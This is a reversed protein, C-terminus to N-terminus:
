RISLRVDDPFAKLIPVGRMPRNEVGLGLGFGTVVALDNHEQNGCARGHVGRQGGIGAASTQQNFFHAGVGVHSRSQPPFHWGLLRRRM